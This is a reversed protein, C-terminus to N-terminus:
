TNQNLWSEVILKAALADVAENKTALKKAEVTTLREDIRHVALNFKDALKNAFRNACRTLQQESGDMNLPIGVVLESAHWDSIITEIEQWNPVGDVAKIIKLPSATKTIHQGVAVGIRKMGFDFGIITLKPM